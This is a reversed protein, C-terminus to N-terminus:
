SISTILSNLHPTTIPINSSLGYKIKSRSRKQKEAKSKQGIHPNNSHIKFYWKSEDM